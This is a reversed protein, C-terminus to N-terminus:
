PGVLPSAPDHQVGNPNMHTEQVEHAMVKLLHYKELEFVLLGAFITVIFGMFIGILSHYIKEKTDHTAFREAWTDQLLHVAADCEEQKKELVLVKAYTERTTDTLGNFLRTKIAGVEGKVLDTSRSLEDLKSSIQEILRFFLDSDM